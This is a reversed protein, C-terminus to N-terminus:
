LRTVHIFVVNYWTYPKPGEFYFNFRWFRNLSLKLFATFLFNCKFFIYIFLVLMVTTVVIWDIFTYIKTEILFLLLYDISNDKLFTINKISISILNHKITLKLLQSIQQTCELKLKRPVFTTSGIRWVFCFFGGTFNSAPASSKFLYWVSHLSRCLSESSFATWACTCFLYNQM